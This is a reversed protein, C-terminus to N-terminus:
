IKKHHRLLGNPEKRHRLLAAAQQQDHDAAVLKCFAILTPLIPWFLDLHLVLLLLSTPDPFPGKGDLPFKDLVHQESPFKTEKVAPARSM